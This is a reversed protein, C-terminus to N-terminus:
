VVHQREKCPAKGACVPCGPDRHLRVRRLDMRQGDFLLLQGDLEDDLGLLVGLAATAQISGIIGAVPPLIGQEDCHREAGAASEPYLCAFCPPTPARDFRFVGAQGRMGSVAGSVLATGTALCAANVAYRTTFNDSCDIVVDAAAAQRHLEEDALQRPLPTISIGPNLDRLTQAASLAKNHGLSRQGHVIQRHLNSLEVCDGDSIVIQGVGSGALYLAAPSGLGGAGIVLARSALLREQGQLDIEPLLIQRSYRDLQHDDM